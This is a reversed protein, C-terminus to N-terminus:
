LAGRVTNTLLLPASVADAPVVAGGDAHLDFRIGVWAVDADVYALGIDRDLGPSHYKAVLDGVATDDIWVASPATVGDARDFTLCVLKRRIADAGKQAELVERGIFSPKRFNIMAHLGAEIATRGPPIDRQRNLSRMEAMMLPLADRTGEAGGLQAGEEVVRSLIADGPRPGVIRYEFEGVYGIRAVLHGITRNHEFGLYPLGVIDEDTVKRALEQGRPGINGISFTVDTVDEVTAEFTGVHSALHAAAATRDEPETMLLVSDDDKLIWVIAVIGGDADFLVTNQIHGPYIADVDSSVIESVFELHQPGSIRFRGEDSMDFWAVADRVAAYTAELTM